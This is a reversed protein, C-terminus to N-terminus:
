RKVRRPAPLSAAGPTRGLADMLAAALKAPAVARYSEALWAELLRLPPRSGKAFKATVWGAKGLGYGTPSAFPFMLAVGHSAPLKVSLSLASADYHMFIFVKKKVKLAHEGWPFDEHVEPFALGKKRLADGARRTMSTPLTDVGNEIIAKGPSSALLDVPAELLRGLRVRALLM